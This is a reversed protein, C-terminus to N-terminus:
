DKQYFKGMDAYNAVCQILMQYKIELLIKRVTEIPVTKTTKTKNPVELQSLFHYAAYSLGLAGSLLLM